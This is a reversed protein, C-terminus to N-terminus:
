HVFALEHGVVGCAVGLELHGQANRVLMNRGWVPRRNHRSFLDPWIPKETLPLKADKWAVYGGKLSYLNKFGLYEMTKLARDTRGFIINKTCHVIYKKDPDLTAVMDEFSDDQVPVNVSGPVQSKEFEVPRRVDLIVADEHEIAFENAAIVDIGTASSPFHNYELAVIVVFLGALLLLKRKNTTKIVQQSEM